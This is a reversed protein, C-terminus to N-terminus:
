LAIILKAQEIARAAHDRDVASNLDYDARTRENKLARLAHGKQKSTKSPNQCNPHTAVQFPNTLRQILAEHQGFNGAGVHGPVSLLSHWMDCAHYAGYYARNIANRAAIETTHTQNIDAAHEIFDQVSVTM